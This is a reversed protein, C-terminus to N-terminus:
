VNWMEWCSSSFRSCCCCCVSFFLFLFLVITKSLSGNFQRWKGKIQTKIVIKQTAKKTNQTYTHTHTHIRSELRKVNECLFEVASFNGYGRGARGLWVRKIYGRKQSSFWWLWFAFLALVCSPGPGCHPDPDSRPWIALQQQKHQALLVFSLRRRRRRLCRCRRRPGSRRKTQPRTM